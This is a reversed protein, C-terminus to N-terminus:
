RAPRIKSVNLQLKANTELKCLGLLNSFKLVRAHFIFIEEM